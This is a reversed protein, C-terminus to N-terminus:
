VPEYYIEKLNNTYNERKSYSVVAKNKALNCTISKARLQVGNKDTFRGNNLLSNFSGLGLPINENDVKKEQKYNLFSKSFYFNEWLYKASILDRHNAPLKGGRLVATRPLSWNKVGFKVLGVKSTVRGALNSNGGFFNALNDITRFMGKITNELGNLKDKRNVHGVPLNVEELGKILDLKPNSVTNLKTHVQYSTGKYNDITWDDSIETSYSILFNSVLEDANISNNTVLVDPKIYTSINWWYPDEEQRFQLVGDIVQYKANYKNKLFTFMELCVFGYDTSSPIGSTIKGQLKLFGTLSDQTDYNKNSPIYYNDNLNAIGTQFSYGLYNAVKELLKRETIAKGKRKPPILTNALDSALKLLIALMAIFYAVQIVLMAISAVLAGVAGTLSSSAIGAVTAGQVGIDKGSTILKDTIIYITILAIILDIPNIEAEVIYDFDLYDAQTFVGITELYHYDIASLRDNLTILTNEKSILCTLEPKIKSYNFGDTLNIYGDFAVVGSPVDANTYKLSCPIGEFVKGSNYQSMVIDYAKNVLTLESVSINPQISDNDYTALIEIDQWDRPVNVAQGDIEFTLQVDKRM